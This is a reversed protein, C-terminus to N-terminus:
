GAFRGKGLEENGNRVTAEARAARPRLIFGGPGTKRIISLVACLVAPRCGTSMCWPSPTYRNEPWPRRFSLPPEPAGPRQLQLPRLFSSAHRVSRGFVWMWRRPGKAVTGDAALGDIHDHVVEAGLRHGGFRPGVRLQEPAPLVQKTLRPALR